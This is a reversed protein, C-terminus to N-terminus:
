KSENFVGLFGEMSRAIGAIGGSLNVANIWNTQEKSPKGTKNKLEASAFVAIKEGVMDPTVTVTKWGILDSSGEKLGCKVRRPFALLVWKMNPNGIVSLAKEKKIEKGAWFCGINNRFLRLGPIKRHERLIEAQISSETKM